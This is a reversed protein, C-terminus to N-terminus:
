SAEQEQEDFQEQEVKRVKKYFTSTAMGCMQAASELNMERSRWAQRAEEFNVPLESKDSHDAGDPQMMKEVRKVADHFSTSAMGCMAAADRLNVEHSRWALRAKEFDPPLPNRKKGFKVGRAQADAVVKKQKEARERQIGIRTASQFLESVFVGLFEQNDIDEHAMVTAAIDQALDRLQDKMTQQDSSFNLDM